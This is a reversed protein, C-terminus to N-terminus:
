DDVTFGRNTKYDAWKKNTNRRRGRHPSDVDLAKRIDEDDDIGITRRHAIRQLVESDEHINPQHVTHRGEYFSAAEADTMIRCQKPFLKVAEDAFEKPVCLMGLWCGHPSDEDADAHGCTRDYKWGGFRDVYYSWDVGGRLHPAIKNFAPHRHSNDGKLLIKCCIPVLHM